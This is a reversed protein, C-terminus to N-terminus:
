VDRKARNVLQWVRQETIKLEKGIAKHTMGRARMALIDARRKSAQEKIQERTM